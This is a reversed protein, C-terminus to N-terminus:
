CFCCLRGVVVVAVVTVIVLESAPEDGDCEGKRLLSIVETGDVNTGGGEKEGKGGLSIVFSIPTSETGEKVIVEALCRKEERAISPLSDEPLFFYRLDLLIEVAM